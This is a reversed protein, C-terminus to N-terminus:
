DNRIESKLINVARFIIGRITSQKKALIAAATEYSFDMVFILLLVNKQLQTLKKMAEILKSDEFAFEKKLLVSNNILFSDDLLSDDLLNDDDQWDTLFTMEQENKIKRFYDILQNKAIKYIWVSFSRSNFKKTQLNGDVKLFVESALDESIQKDSTRFYFYNYIKPMFCYYIKEFWIKEGSKRYHALFNNIDNM